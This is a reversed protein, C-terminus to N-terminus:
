LVKASNIIWFKKMLFHEDKVNEYHFQKSFKCIIQIISYNPVYAYAKFIQM